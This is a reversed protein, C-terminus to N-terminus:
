SKEHGHTGRLELRLNYSQLAPNKSVGGTKLVVRRSIRSPLLALRRRMRTNFIRYIADHLAAAPLCVSDLLAVRQPASAFYAPGLVTLSSFAETFAPSCASTWRKVGVVM